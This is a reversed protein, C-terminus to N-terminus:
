QYSNTSLEIKIIGVEPVQGNTANLFGFNTAYISKSSLKVSSPFDLGQDAIISVQRDASIKIIKDQLNLAAFINGYRDIAIGDAGVLASCDPGAFIEIKGASGDDNIPIKLITAALTNSVYINNKYYALGNAGVDIGLRTESCNASSAKLLDDSIWKNVTGDKEVVFISGDFSDSIFMRGKKGFIIDNPFKMDPHTAFLEAETSKFSVKYVGTKVQENFSPLAAYLNKKSDMTVGLLFAEGPNAKPWVGYPAVTGDPDIKYAQVQPAMSVYTRGVLMTMSEPLEGKSGDFKTVFEVNEARAIGFQSLSIIGAIIVFAISLAAARTNM